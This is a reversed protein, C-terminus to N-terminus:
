GSVCIEVRKTGDGNSYLLGIHNGSYRIFDSYFFAIGVSLFLLRALVDEEVKLAVALMAESLQERHFGPPISQRTIKISAETLM